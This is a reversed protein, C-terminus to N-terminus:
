RRDERQRRGRAAMLGYCGVIGWRVAAHILTQPALYGANKAAINFEEEFQAMYSGASISAHHWRFDAIPPGKIRAAGGKQWLRLVFDYDWAALLDERLFGTSQLASNRFFMAPQSIYNICQITFRSSLPFFLTKFFSIGRRIECGSADIIRCNGFFLSKAPYLAATELVRKLAGPALRDDANLWSVLKGSALRLGKNIAAAPGTDAESIVATIENRYQGVIEMSRDTSKGDVVIYELDVGDGRQALVSRIAEDLFRSGNKNATIVTAKM